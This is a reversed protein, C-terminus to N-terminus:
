CAPKTLGLREAASIYDGDNWVAAIADAESMGTRERLDIVYGKFEALDQETADDGLHEVTMENLTAM